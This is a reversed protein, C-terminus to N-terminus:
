QQLERVVNAAFMRPARARVKDVDLRKRVSLSKMLFFMPVFGQKLIEGRRQQLGKRAGTLVETGSGVFLKLKTRTRQTTGYAAAVRLCWLARGPKGDLPLVFAEGRKGAQMMQEPTTRLGGRKGASRRGGGANYGTPFALYKGGRARITAGKDFSNVVDPMKSWVLAAPRLTRPAAAPSGPFVRLRWANAVARGGDKFGAGRAQARLENQVQQGTTTVARRLAASVRRVEQDLAQTLNGTITARLFTM